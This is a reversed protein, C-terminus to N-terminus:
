DKAIKWLLDFYNKYSKVLKKSEILIIMIPEEHIFLAIKDGYIFTATPSQYEKPLYKIKNLEWIPAPTGKTAIIKATIKKKNREKAWQETYTPLDGSFKGESGFVLFEKGEEIIDNMVTKQGEVGIFIQALNKNNVEKKISQIKNVIEKAQEQKKEAIEKEERAIDLFKSPNTASYYKIKNQIIYSVFGKSILRELVDYITTRHLQTKKIIDSALSTGQKLLSLYVKEETETLGFEKLM